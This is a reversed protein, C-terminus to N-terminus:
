VDEFRPDKESPVSKAFEVSSEQDEGVVKKRPAAAKQQPVPQSKKPAKMKIVKADTLPAAAVKPPASVAVNSSPIAKMNNSGWVLSRLQSVVQTLDNAQEDLSKAAQASQRAAESNRHTVQDLQGMAKTVETVGQSQEQSAISIENVLGDVSDVNHLIKELAQGCENVVGKGLDVKEKGTRALESMRTRTNKVITEVKSVGNGLMDSIEKAATGSMQALNGVEEAVVAFGKGQEGARAAEVSANFSLLKTQFVIDNIVKTKEGIEGIVRVIEEIEQNGHEIQTVMNDNSAGIEAIAIIMRNVADRGNQSAVKSEQSTTQSRKSNERNKEVMAQIQDVSAVTEQIAASQENVAESLESSSSFINKSTNALKESGMGLTGMISELRVVITRSLHLSATLWLLGILLTGVTAYIFMREDRALDATIETMIREEFKGIVTQVHDMSATSFNFFELPDTSFKGTARNMVVDGMSLNVMMWAESAKFEEIRVNDEATMLDSVVDFSDMVIERDGIIEVFQSDDLAQKMQLRHTVIARLQGLRDKGTELMTLVRIETKLREVTIVEDVRNYFSFYDHVLETYKSFLAERDQETVVPLKRLELTANMLGTLQDSLEKKIPTTSLREKVKQMAVETKKFQEDLRSKSFTGNPINSSIERESQIEHVLTSTTLLLNLQDLSVAEEKMNKWNGYTFIGAVLTILVLPALALGMIKTKLSFTKKM